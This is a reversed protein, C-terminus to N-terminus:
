SGTLLSKEQMYKHPIHPGTINNRQEYATLARTTNISVNLM